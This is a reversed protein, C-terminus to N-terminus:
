RAQVMESMPKLPPLMPQARRLDSKVIPNQKQNPEQKALLFAPVDPTNKSNKTEYAPELEWAADVPPLVFQDATLALPFDPLEPVATPLRHCFSFSFSFTLLGVLVQSQGLYWTRQVDHWPGHGLLQSPGQLEDLPRVM